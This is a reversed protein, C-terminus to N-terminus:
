ERKARRAKKSLYWWYLRYYWPAPRGHSVTFIESQLETPILFGGEDGSIRNEEREETLESM